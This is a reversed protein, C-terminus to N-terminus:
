RAWSERYRIAGRVAHFFRSISSAGEVNTQILTSYKNGEFLWAHRLYNRLITFQSRDIKVSRWQKLREGCVWNAQLDFLRFCVLLSSHFLLLFFISSLQRAISLATRGIHLYVDNDIRAFRIYKHLERCCLICLAACQSCM